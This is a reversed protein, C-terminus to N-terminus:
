RNRTASYTAFIGWEMRCAADAFGNARLTSLITEPPVCHEITDSYYRMLMRARPGSPALRSLAPVVRGLYAYALARALRTTPRLIELLLIRGGQRLVRAFERFSAGLDAVHRLAYGMTVFDFREAGFPLADVTGRVFDIGGQDRAVALMGASLDMATVQGRPGVLDRAVRAMMGTGTAVDLVRAGDGLGACRLAQARYWRGTGFSFAQTIGDYDAATDDFLRGVFAQRDAARSYYATLPPHPALPAMKVDHVEGATM